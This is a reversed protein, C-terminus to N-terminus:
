IKLIILNLIYINQVFMERYKKFNKTYEELKKVRWPIYAKLWGFLFNVNGHSALMLDPFM